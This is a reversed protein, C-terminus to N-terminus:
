NRRASEKAATWYGKFSNAGHTGTMEGVIFNGKFVGKFTVNSPGWDLNWGISDPTVFTYNLVELFEEPYHENASMVELTSYGDEEIVTIHLKGEFARETQYQGIWAEKEQMDTSATVLYFGLFFIKSLVFM